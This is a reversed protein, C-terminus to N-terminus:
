FQVFQVVEVVVEALVIWGADGCAVEFLGLAEVLVTGHVAGGDNLLDSFGEMVLVFVGVAFGDLGLGHSDDM